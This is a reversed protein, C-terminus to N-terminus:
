SRRPGNIRAQGTRPNYVWGGKGNARLYVRSTGVYPDEPISGLFRPVLDKLARPYRRHKRKYKYIAAAMESESRSVQAELGKALRLVTGSVIAPKFGSLKADWSDVPLDEYPYFSQTVIGEAVNSFAMGGKKFGCFLETFSSLQNTWLLSSSSGQKLATSHLGVTIINKYLGYTDILFLLNSKASLSSPLSKLDTGGSKGKWIRLVKELGEKSTAMFLWRDRLAYLIDQKRGTKMPVGLRVYSGAEDNKEKSFSMGGEGKSFAKEVLRLALLGALRSRFRAVVISDHEIGAASARFGGYAFAAEESLREAFLGAHNRLFDTLAPPLGPVKSIHTELIKASAEAPLSNTAVVMYSNPAIFRLVEYDAPGAISWEKFTEGALPSLHSFGLSRLGEKWSLSSVSWDTFVPLGKLSLNLGKLEDDKTLSYFFSEAPIRKFAQQVWATTPMASAPGQSLDVCAKIKEIENSLALAASDGWPIVALAAMPTIMLLPVGKYLNEPKFEANAPLGAFSPIASFLAKLSLDSPIKALFLLSPLKPASSRPMFDAPSFRVPTASGAPPYIAILCSKGFVTGLVAPDSAASAEKLRPAHYTDAAQAAASAVYNSYVKYLNSSKFVQVLASLNRSGLVIVPGEPVLNELDASLTQAPVPGQSIPERAPKPAEQVWNKWVWFGGGLLAAFLVILLPRASGRAM